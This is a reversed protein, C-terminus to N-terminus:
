LIEEDKGWTNFHVIEEMPKRVRPALSTARKREDLTSLDGEYGIAIAIVVKIEEPFGFAEKVGRPSFGAMPRAVLGLETAQLMINEVALGLDFLYYDREDSSQCDWDPRSYGFVLVPATKAWTNGGSLAERGRALAEPGTLVLFRWPQNNMCSPALRAAELIAGVKEPEVSREDIARTAKRANLLGLVNAEM